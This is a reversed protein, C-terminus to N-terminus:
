KSVWEFFASVPQFVLFVFAPMLMVVGVAVTQIAIDPETDGKPDSRTLWVGVAGFVVCLLGLSSFVSLVMM